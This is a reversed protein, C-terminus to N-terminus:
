LVSVVKVEEVAVVKRLEEWIRVMALTDLKCYEILDNIVQQHNLPSGSVLEPHRSTPPENRNQHVLEYWATMAATGEQVNLDQYSLDPCVVPLVAKLSNSGHCRYDVYFGKKFPDMLDYMRKNISQLKDAFQPQLRALEQNQWCEFGKNWSIVSGKNGIVSVLRKVLEESPEDTDTVLYEFHKPEAGESEVVHISYQFVISQYPSYNDYLPVVPGYTEYDLFYLPYELAALEGAIRERDIVPSKTKASAVQLKQNSSLKFDDPIESLDHVGQALLEDYQKVSGYTLDYIPYDSLHPQCLSNCPCNKPKYCHFEFPPDARQIMELAHDRAALVEAGLSEVIEMMDDVLFFSQLDFEGQRLYNKNVRVLYIKHIPLSQRGALYQFTVDYQHEPKINTSSKIEYLDYTNHVKDHVMCDIRAEFSGDVLTKEFSITANEYQTAVKNTLYEQALRQVAYGQKSLHQDYLSKPRPDLRDHKRAWLHLPSDLFTIFDSKTLQM